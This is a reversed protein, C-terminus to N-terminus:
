PFLEGFVLKDKSVNNLAKSKKAKACSYVSAQEIVGAM